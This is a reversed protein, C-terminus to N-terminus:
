NCKCRMECCSDCNQRRASPGDAVGYMQRVGNDGSRQRLSPALRRKVGNTWPRSTPPRAARTGADHAVIETRVTTANPADTM